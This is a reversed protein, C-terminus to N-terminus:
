LPGLPCARVPLVFYDSDKGLVAACGRHVCYSAIERDAEGATYHVECGQEAFASGVTKSINPPPMWAAKAPAEGRGLAGVVREVKKYDNLRRERWESLKADDVGGDMFVVLQLGQTAFASVFASVNLWVEQFQGGVIWELDAPYMKRLLAMGDLVIVSANASADMSGPLVGTGALARLPVTHQSVPLRGELYTHLGKVGQRLLLLRFAFPDDRSSPPACTVPAPTAISFRAFLTLVM